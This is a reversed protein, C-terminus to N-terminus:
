IRIDRPTSCGTNQSVLFTPLSGSHSWFQCRTSTCVRVCVCMCVCWNLSFCVLKHPVSLLFPSRHPSSTVEMKKTEARKQRGHRNEEGRERKREKEGGTGRETGGSFGTFRVQQDLFVLSRVQLQAGPPLPSVLMLVWYVSLYLSLYECVCVCV